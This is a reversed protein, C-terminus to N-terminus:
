EILDIYRMLAAMRISGTEVHISAPSDQWRADANGLVHAKSACPSSGLLLM